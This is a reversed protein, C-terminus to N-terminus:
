AWGGTRAPVNHVRGDAVRAAEDGEGAAFGVILLALHCEGFHGCLYSCAAPTCQGGGAQHMSVWGAVWGALWGAVWGGLKHKGWEVGGVLASRHGCM